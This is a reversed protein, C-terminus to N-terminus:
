AKMKKVVYANVASQLMDQWSTFRTNERVYADFEEDPIAEFDEKSNVQYGGAELFADFSSVATNQSMFGPTFLEAFSVEKTGSLAEANRKIRNLEKELKDFGTIKVSM